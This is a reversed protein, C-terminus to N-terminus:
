ALHRYLSEMPDMPDPRLAMNMTATPVRNGDGGYGGFIYNVQGNHLVAISCNPLNPNVEFWQPSLHCWMMMFARITVGHSVIVINDISDRGKMPAPQRDRVITGFLNSVRTCVDFCSEGNPM